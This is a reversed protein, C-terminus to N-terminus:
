RGTEIMVEHRAGARGTMVTYLGSAFGPVVESGAQLAIGTMRCGVPRRQDEFM